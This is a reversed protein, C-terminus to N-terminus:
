LSSSFFFFVYPLWKFCDTITSVVVPRGTMHQVSGTMANVGHDTICGRSVSEAFASGACM